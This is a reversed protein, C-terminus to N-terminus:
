QALKVNVWETGGQVVQIRSVLAIGLAPLLVVLLIYYLLWDYVLRM